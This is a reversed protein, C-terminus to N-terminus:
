FGIDDAPKIGPKASPTPKAKGSPRGAPRKQQKPPIPAAVATEVPPATASPPPAPVPATKVEPTPPDVPKPTQMPTVVEPKTAGSGVDRLTPDAGPGLVKALVGAGIGLLVLLTVGGLILGGRSSTAARPAPTQTIPAGTIQPARGLVPSPTTAGMPTPTYPTAASTVRVRINPSSGSTDGPLSTQVSLGCVASLSTSLEAATQFRGEPERSLARSFWSDFGLPLDSVYQSPVPLPATCLKVLVDGVAEGEFPLHGTM